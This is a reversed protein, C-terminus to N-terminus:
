GRASVIDYIPGGPEMLVIYRSFLFAVGASPEGELRGGVGASWGVKAVAHATQMEPPGILGLVPSSNSSMMWGISIATTGCITFVTPASSESSSTCAPMHMAACLM